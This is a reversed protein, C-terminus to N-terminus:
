NLKRPMGKSIDSSIDEVLIKVVAVNIGVHEFIYNKVKAQIEDTVEPVSVDPSLVVKILVKIGEPYYAVKPKIDQVGKVQNAVRYSMNELANLSVSIQGIKTEKVLAREPSAPRSLAQLFFKLSLFLFFVIVSGIIVRDRDYLLSVQLFNLPDTWGLAALGSLFLAAMIGLTYIVMLSRDLFGM